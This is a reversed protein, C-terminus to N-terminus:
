RSASLALPRQSAAVADARLADMVRLNAVSEGPPVAYTADGRVADAFSAVMLQYHDAAAVTERTDGQASWREIAFAEGPWAVMAGRDVRLRGTDGVIEYSCDFHARLDCAFHGLAGCPFGLVGAFAADVGPEAWTARASTLDPEDGAMLRLVSVCYCGLDLLAGGGASRWRIDGAPIAVSFSARMTAVRGVAGDVILEHGRRTLPHFRYMLAEGVVLDRQAFAAVVAEAEAATTAFPKEILAAKGAAACAHAWPAHEATPLPVYVADIDPDALLDAYSDYARAIGHKTAFARARDADRSAIALVVSDPTAAIAPAVASDAIRAAGLIAWRVPRM